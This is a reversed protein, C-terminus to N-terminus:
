RVLIYILSAAAAVLGFYARGWPSAPVAGVAVASLPLSLFGWWWRFMIMGVVIPVLSAFFAVWHILTQAAPSALALPKDLPRLNNTTTFGTTVCMCAFALVTFPLNTLYWLIGDLIGVVVVWFMFVRIAYM